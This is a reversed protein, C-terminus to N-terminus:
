SGGIGYCLCIVATVLLLVAGAQVANQLMEM